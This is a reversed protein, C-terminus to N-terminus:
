AIIDPELPCKHCGMVFASNVNEFMICCKLIRYGIWRSCWVQSKNEKVKLSRPLLSRMPLIISSFWLMSLSLQFISEFSCCPCKSMHQVFNKLLLFVSWYKIQEISLMGFYIVIKIIAPVVSFVVTSLFSQAKIRTRYLSLIRCLSLNFKNTKWFYHRVRPHLHHSHRLDCDHNITLIFSQNSSRTIWMKSSYKVM